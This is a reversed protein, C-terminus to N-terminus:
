PPHNCLLSPGGVRDCGAAWTAAMKPRKVIHTGSLSHKRSAEFM